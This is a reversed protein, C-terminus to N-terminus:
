SEARIIDMPTMRSASWAPILSAILSALNATIFATIYIDLDYSILLHNSGGIEFGFDISGFWKCLAYGLVIGLLGGSLGLLLGQYLILELIMKPAFGIARLIAIEKRKQNIMISLVNYIGFAAVILISTTIFYRTFDQVKIVEMFAKNAEKWDQVKDNSQLAWEKSKAEAQNINFLTVAIDTVRGPDKILTQVTNIHAYAISDDAQQNGYHIIGVIKFPQIQGRGSQVNIFQNLKAGIKKALGSGIVINPGGNKLVSFSGSKIYKEIQTSRIQKEPIIGILSSTASFQGLTLFANTSLRPSFEYVAPDNKLHQIWLQYSQLKSDKRKGAPPTIWFYNDQNTFLNESVKKSDIENDSGSILIHATNNLLQEFIYQRMGLQVGSISVFLLTGFSIGLLILQTQKKRAMLQRWSLFFM